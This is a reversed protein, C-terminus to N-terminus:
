MDELILELVDRTENNKQILRKLIDANFEIEDGNENYLKVGTYDHTILYKGDFIRYVRIWSHKHIFFINVILYWSNMRDERNGDIYYESVIDFIGRIAEQQYQAPQGVESMHRLLNIIHKKLIQKMDFENLSGGLKKNFALVLQYIIEELLSKM